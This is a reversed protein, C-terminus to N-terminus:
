AKVTVSECRRGEAPRGACGDVADFGSTATPASSLFLTNTVHTLYNRADSCPLQAQPREFIEFSSFVSRHSFWCPGGKERIPFGPMCARVCLPISPWAKSSHTRGTAEGCSTIWASITACSLSRLRPSGIESLDMGMEIHAPPSSGSVAPIARPCSIVGSDDVGLAPDPKGFHDTVVKV